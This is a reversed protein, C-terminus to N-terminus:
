TREVESLSELIEKRPLNGSELDVDDLGLIRQYFERLEGNIEGSDRAEFFHDEARAFKKEREFHEGLALHLHSPLEFEALRALTNELYEKCHGRIEEDCSRSASTFLHAANVLFRYAAIEDGDRRCMKGRVYLVTAAGMIRSHNPQNPGSVFSEILDPPSSEIVALPIGVATKAMKEVELSAGNLDGKEIQNAVRVLFAGMLEILRMIYDTRIM